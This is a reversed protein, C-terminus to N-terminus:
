FLFTEFPKTRKETVWNQTESFCSVLEEIEGKRFDLGLQLFLHCDSDPVLKFQLDRAGVDGDTAQLLLNLAAHM